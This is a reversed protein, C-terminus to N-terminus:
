MLDKFKSELDKMKPDSSCKMMGMMKPMVKQMRDGYKAMMEKAKEKDGKFKEKMGKMDKIDSEYKSLVGSVNDAMKGCDSGASDVADGMAEMITVMKDMQDDASKSCATPAFALAACILVNRITM